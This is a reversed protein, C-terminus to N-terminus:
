HNNKFLEDYTKNLLKSIKCMNIFLMIPTIVIGILALIIIINILFNM